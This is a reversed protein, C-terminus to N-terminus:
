RQVESLPERSARTQVGELAAGWPGDMRGFEGCRPCKVTTQGRQFKVVRTRVIVSGDDYRRVIKEGCRGCRNLIDM